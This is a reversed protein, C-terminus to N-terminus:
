EFLQAINKTAWDKIDRHQPKNLEHDLKDSLITQGDKVTFPLDDFSVNRGEGYVSVIIELLRDAKEAEDESM